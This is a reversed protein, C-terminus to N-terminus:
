RRDIPFTFRNLASLKADPCHNLRCKNISQLSLLIMSFKFSFIFQVPYHALESLKVCKLQVLLTKLNNGLFFVVHILSLM